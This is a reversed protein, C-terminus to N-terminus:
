AQSSPPHRGTARCERPSVGYVKRFLRSFHAADSFGWAYAIDTISRQSLAPDELDAKCRGLRRSQLWRMPTTEESAFVAYLGRESIGLGRAISAPSLDPDRLHILAHLKARLIAPSQGAGGCEPHAGSLATMLLDCFHDRLRDALPGPDSEHEEFALQRIFGFIFRGSGAKGDLARATFPDISGYRDRFPARPITVCLQRFPGRFRLEYPRTSDYLVFGGPDTVCVRGDQELVGSGSVQFNFQLCEVPDSAISRASRSVMQRGSSVDTVRMRGIRRTTIAGAFGDRADCELEVRPYYRCVAERWQLFRSAEHLSQTSFQELFGMLGGPRGALSDPRADTATV